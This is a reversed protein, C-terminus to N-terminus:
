YHFLARMKGAFSLDLELADDFTIRTGAILAPNMRAEVHDTDGLASLLRKEHAPDPTRAFEIQVMHGGHAATEIKEIEHAVQPLRHADGNKALAKLLGTQASEYPTGAHLSDIFARAYHSPRPRM